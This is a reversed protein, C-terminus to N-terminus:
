NIGFGSAFERGLQFGPFRRRQFRVAGGRLYQAFLEFLIWHRNLLEAAMATKATGGFLDVVLQGPESLFEILFRALALPMMAGHIPLGLEQADRRYERTDACAHGIQLVNKPIRGETENAYSGARLRYAGDGYVGRRPCEGANQVAQLWKRHRDTHPELVRRNDSFVRSPDNTFWYVPEYGTNLQVRSKSAYQIPGPPKSANHWIITDMLYLSLRDVLALVLREKAVSRAASGLLFSDNTLNLCISGGPALQAVIPELAKCIFDVYEQETLPNGYARPRRLLYPPSTVVLHIPQGLDPFEITSDGWIAIGMDTSFAVLRMDAPAATLGDKNTKTLGWVGRRDAQRELLGLHKLTQQVWRVARKFPSHQAGGIAVTRDIEAEPVGARQAVVRYLDANSVPAGGAAQYSDLVAQFLDLQEPRSRTHSAAEPKNRQPQASM